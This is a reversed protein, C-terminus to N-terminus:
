GGSILSAALSGASSEVRQGVRRLVIEHRAAPHDSAELFM